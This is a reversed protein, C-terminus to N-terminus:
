RLLALFEEVTLGAQVIVERLTRMSLDRSHIPIVTRRGTAANALIAHSGRQRRVTFGARRLASIVETPKLAPLDPM